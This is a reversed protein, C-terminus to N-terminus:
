AIHQERIAMGLRQCQRRYIALHTDM